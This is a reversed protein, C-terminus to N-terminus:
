RADKEAAKARKRDIEGEAVLLLTDGMKLFVDKSAQDLAEWSKRNEAGEDSAPDGQIGRRIGEGYSWLTAAFVERFPYKSFEKPFESMAAEV